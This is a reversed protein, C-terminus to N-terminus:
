QDKGFPPRVWLTQTPRQPKDRTQFLVKIKAKFKPISSRTRNNKALNTTLFHQLVTNKEFKKFRLNSIMLYITRSSPISGEHNNCLLFECIRSM